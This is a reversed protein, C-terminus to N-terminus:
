ACKDCTMLGRGHECLDKNNNHTSDYTKKVGAEFRPNIRGAKGARAKGISAVKGGSRWRHGNWNTDEEGHCSYKPDEYVQKYLLVKSISYKGARDEGLRHIRKGCHLINWESSIHVRKQRVNQFLVFFELM